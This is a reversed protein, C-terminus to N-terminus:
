LFDLRKVFKLILKSFFIIFNISCVPICISVSNTLCIRYWLYPFYIRNLWWVKFKGLISYKRVKDYVNEVSKGMMMLMDSSKNTSNYANGRTIATSTANNALSVLLQKKAPSRAMNVFNSNLDIHPFSSIIFKNCFKCIICFHVCICFIQFVAM